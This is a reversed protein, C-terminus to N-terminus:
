KQAATSIRLKKNVISNSQAWIAQSLPPYWQGGKVMVMVMVLNMMMLMLMLMFMIMMMTMM